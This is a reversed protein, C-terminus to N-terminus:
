SCSLYSMRNSKAAMRRFQLDLIFQLIGLLFIRVFLYSKIQDNYRDQMIIRNAQSHNWLFNPMVSLHDTCILFLSFIVFYFLHQLTRKWGMGKIGGKWGNVDTRLGSGAIEMRDMVKSKGEWCVRGAWPLLWTVDALVNSLSSIKERVFPYLIGIWFFFLPFSVLHWARCFM